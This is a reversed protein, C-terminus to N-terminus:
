QAFALLDADLGLFLHSDGPVAPRHGLVSVWRQHILRQELPGLLIQAPAAPVVPGIVLYALADETAHRHAGFASM